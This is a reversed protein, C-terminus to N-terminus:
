PAEGGKAPEVAASSEPAVAPVLPELERIKDAALKAEDRKALDPRGALERYVELAERNLGLTELAGARRAYARANLDAFKGYAVYIREFYPLATKTEGAALHSEGLLYLAEAKTAATISPSELLQTLSDRAAPTEGKQILLRARALLIEGLGSSAATEREFKGYWRLADDTDGAAEALRGLGAYIRDKQIARPHWRRAETYLQKALLVNGAERQTDACDVTLLPNHIKPDVLNSVSLLAARARDPDIRELVKARGWACRLALTNRKGSEALQLFKELESLLAERGADGENQYVKPLALILDDMSYLEPRNGHQTIIKWYSDRASEVKGAQTDIWGLWYVAEPMRQSDPYLQVFREFHKRMAAFDETLKHAKGIKFWGDEFFRTAEPRIAQYAAIGRDIDGEAFLADGLLLRTEDLLEDGPHQAIFEEFLAISEPYKALSFTCVAIRFTAEKRYKPTAGGKGFRELYAEMHDRAADYDKSFSLAMGSWYDADDVLPSDPHKKKLQDFQFLAGENDDQQLYLFGQMFLAKPATPDDPFREVLDGYALQAPGFQLDERLAEAKLYLVTPLHKGSDGFQKVYLDAAEVAKPWRGIEMW